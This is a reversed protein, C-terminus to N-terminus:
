ESLFLLRLSLLFLILVVGHVLEGARSLIQVRLRLDQGSRELLQQLQLGHAHIGGHGILLADSSTLVLNLSELLSQADQGGVRLVTISALAGRRASCGHLILQPSRKARQIEPICLAVSFM